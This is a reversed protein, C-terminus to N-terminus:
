RKPRPRPGPRAGPRGQGQGGVPGGAGQRHTARARPDPDTRRRDEGEPDARSGSEARLHAPDPRVVPTLNKTSLVRELEESTDTQFEERTDGVLLDVAGRKTGHLRCISGIQPQIVKQEVDKLTGFQRVIDPAQDPCSAGSRRTTSTSRSDTRRSSSSGPGKSISPTRAPDDQGPPRGPPASAERTQVVQTTENFGISIVDVQKEQPNLFYIGPQLVNDQIGQTEGLLPNDTNNRVM